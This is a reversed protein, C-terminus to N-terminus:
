AVVDQGTMRPHIGCGGDGAAKVDEELALRGILAMDGM